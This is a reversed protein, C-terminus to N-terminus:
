GETPVNAEHGHLWVVDFRRLLRLPDLRIQYIANGHADDMSWAYGMKERKKRVCLQWDVHIYPADGEPICYACVMAGGAARCVPLLSALDLALMAHHHAPDFVLSAIETKPKLTYVKGLTRM